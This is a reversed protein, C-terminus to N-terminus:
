GLAHRFGDRWSKYKPEWELEARARENSAGEMATMMHVAYPGGGLKGLFVPVRLPKKAGIIEAYAPLWDAARVPDNDVINFKGAKGANLAHLTASVADEVHIFSFVGGSDGVLPMARKRVGDAISGERAYATGPGYFFGYRLVIGRLRAEDLVTRELDQIASLMERFTEPADGWLPDDETRLGGGHPAYAFAVSQVLFVRAGAARAAAVLNRTGERRLRNTEAFQTKIKRPNIQKPIATLQHIVAEPNADNVVRNLATRDFCDCVVAGAGTARLDAAREASRTTGTVEHGQSLLASVLPRGIVGTAGALFVRM